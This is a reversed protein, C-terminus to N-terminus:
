EYNIIHKWKDRLRRRNAMYAANGTSWTGSFSHRLEIPIQLVTKGLARFQLCFDDDEVGAHNFETDIAVVQLASSRFAHCYGSLIDVPRRGSLAQEIRWGPLLQYGAVGVLGVDKDELAEVLPRKWEPTGAVVDSDLSIIIEGTAEPFLRYRAGAVGFNRAALFVRVGAYLAALRLLWEATGDTSGNDWILVEVDPNEFDTKMSTFCRKTQAMRNYTLFCLTVKM